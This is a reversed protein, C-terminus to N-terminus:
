AARAQSVLFIPTVQKGMTGFTKFKSLDLEAAQSASTLTLAVAAASLSRKLKMTTQKTIQATRASHGLALGSYHPASPPCMWVSRV